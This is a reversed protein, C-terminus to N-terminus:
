LKLFFIIAIIVFLICLLSLKPVESSSVMTFNADYLVSPEGESVFSIVIEDYNFDYRIFDVENKKFPNIKKNSILLSGNHSCFKLKFYKYSIKNHFTYSVIATKELLQFLDKGSPLVSPFDKSECIMIHLLSKRKLNIFDIAGSLEMERRNEIKLMLGHKGAPFMSGSSTIFIKNNCKEENEISIWEFHNFNHLSNIPHVSNKKDNFQKLLLPPLDYYIRSFPLHSRLQLLSEVYVFDILASWITLTSNPFADLLWILQDISSSIFIARIPFTLPQNIKACNLVDLMEKIYSWTYSGKKNIVVETTWGVSLTLTPFYQQCLELFQTSNVPTTSANVPGQIIDANLWVPFKLKNQHIKLIKLSPEVIEISKFDLKVGKGTEANIVREIWNQLSIDSEKNPPHAMIPVSIEPNPGIVNGLSVDAELFNIDNQLNEELLKKSNVAHAWTIDSVDM